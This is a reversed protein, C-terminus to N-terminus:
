RFPNRITMRGEIVQGDRMDESYLVGCKAELASAIILSDYIKYSYREAIHLAAEHTEIKIPVVNPCLFRIWQLAAKVGRWPMQYKRRAVSVFENLVQISIAGEVILLQEAQKSRPDNKIAAYILVNTDFFARDSMRKKAISSLDM